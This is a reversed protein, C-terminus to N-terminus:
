KILVMKKTITFSGADLKYFYIGSAYGLGDWKFSYTGATLNKNVPVSCLKGTIDYIGLKVYSKKPIDFKITTVPNFPNPYNDYLAFRSPTNYRIKEMASIDCISLSFTAWEEPGQPIFEYMNPDSTSLGKGSRNFITYPFTEGGDTSVWVELRDADDSVRQAYAWDFKISDNCDLNNYVPSKLYDVEGYRWYFYFQMQVSHTGGLTPGNAVNVKNFTTGSDLNIVTWGPPPFESEFTEFNYVAPPPNFNNIPLPIVSFLGPKLDPKISSRKTIVPPKASFGGAHMSKACNIIEKNADNQVYVASYIMSDVWASDLKYKITYNYTGADTPIPIGGNSDPYFKRFVDYFDIEGNTGPPQDFHIHREVANLRMRYNGSTLPSYITLSVYAEISDGTIITDTVNLELPSAKSLRAYYPTSFQTVPEYPFVHLYFGDVNLDPVANVNYYNTRWTNQEINYRYMPDGSGPWWVHYKIAVVSDFHAVVFSDLYPNDIACPGCSTNTFAEFMVNRRTGPLFLSFQNITDNERNDDNLLSSFVKITYSTSPSFKYDNFTVETYQGIDLSSIQKTSSYGGPNIKLTVDFTDTINTWGANLFSVCPKLGFPRTGFISYTTDKPINIISIAAVDSSFRHGLSFNDIYLDNGYANMTSFEVVINDVSRKGSDNFPIFSYSVSILLVVIYFIITKM